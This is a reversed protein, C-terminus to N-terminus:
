LSNNIEEIYNLIEEKGLGKDSSSVFMRPLEEWDESLKNSFTQINTKLKSNSIKDIKTFIISFPIGNEGLWQIFEVDIKQPEHRCDILVFVLTLNERYLLYSDIREKLKEREVKSLKAFGYGPLDVISWENNITFYNMVRTKGPTSSTLALGKRGTLMNILSSKGVNSRGIFAYEPTTIAPCKDISNASMMFEASKIEM